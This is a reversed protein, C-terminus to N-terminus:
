RHPISRQVVEFGRGPTVEAPTVSIARGCLLLYFTFVCSPVLPPETMVCGITVIVALILAVWVAITTFGTAISPSWMPVPVPKRWTVLWVGFLIVPLGVIGLAVTVAEGIPVAMNDVFPADERADVYNMWFLQAPIFSLWVISALFYLMGKTRPTTMESFQATTWARKRFLIALVSIGLGIASWGLDCYLFHRTIIKERLADWQVSQNEQWSGHFLLQDGNPVSYEPLLLGTVLLALGIGTIVGPILIPAFRKLM